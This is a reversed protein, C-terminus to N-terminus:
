IDMYGAPSTIEITSFVNSDFLGPSSVRPIHKAISSSFPNKLFEDAMRIVDNEKELSESLGLRDWSVKKNNQMHNCPQTSALFQMQTSLARRNEAKLPLCTTDMCINDRSCRITSTRMRDTDQIPDKHYAFKLTPTLERKIPEPKKSNIRLLTNFSIETKFKKKLTRIGFVLVEEICRTRIHKPFNKFFDFIEINGLM